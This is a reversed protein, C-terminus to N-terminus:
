LATWKNNVRIFPSNDGACTLQYSISNQPTKGKLHPLNPFRLKIQEALQTPTLLETNEKLVTYAYHRLTGARPIDFETEAALKQALLTETVTLEQKGFNSKYGCATKSDILGAIELVNIAAHADYWEAHTVFHRMSLIFQDFDVPAIKMTALLLIPYANATQISKCRDTPNSRREIRVYPFQANGFVCLYKGTKAPTLYSAAVQSQNTLHSM